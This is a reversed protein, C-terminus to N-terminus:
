SLASLCLNRLNHSRIIVEVPQGARDLAAQARTRVEAVDVGRRVHLRLRARTHDMDALFVPAAVSILTGRINTQM